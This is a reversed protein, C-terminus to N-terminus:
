FVSKKKASGVEISQREINSCRQNKLSSKCNFFEMLEKDDVKSDNNTDMRQIEIQVVRELKKSYRQTNSIDGFASTLLQFIFRAQELSIEGELTAFALLAADIKLVYLYFLARDVQGQNPRQSRYIVRIAELVLNVKDTRGGSYGIAGSGFLSVGSQEVDTLYQLLENSSLGSQKHYVFALDRANQHSLKGCDREYELFDVRAGDLLGKQLKAQASVLLDDCSSAILVQSILMLFFM